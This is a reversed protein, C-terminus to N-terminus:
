FAVGIGLAPRVLVGSIWAQVRLEPILRLQEGIAIEAGIGVLPVASLSTFRNQQRDTVDPESCPVLTPMPTPSLPGARRAVCITTEDSSWVASGGFLLHPRVPGRGLSRRASVSAFTERHRSDSGSGISGPIWLEGEIAWAPSLPLVAAVGGAATTGRLNDEANLHNIGAKAVVAARETTQALAPVVCALVMVGSMGVLGRRM